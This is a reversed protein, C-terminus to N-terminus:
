RGLDIGHDPGAHGCTLVEVGQVLPREAGDVRVEHHRLVETGDARHIDALNVFGQRMESAPGLHEREIRHREVLDERGNRRDTVGGAGELQGLFLAAAGVADVDRAAEDHGDLDVALAGREALDEAAVAGGVVAAFLLIAGLELCLSVIEAVRRFGM